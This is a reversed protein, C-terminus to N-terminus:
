RGCRLLPLTINECADTIMNFPLPPAEEQPLTSGGPPAEEPPHKRGEERPTSGRPAPPSQEQPARISVGGPCSSSHATLFLITNSNEFSHIM